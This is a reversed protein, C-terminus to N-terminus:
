RRAIFANVGIVNCLEVAAAFFGQHALDCPEIGSIDYGHKKLFGYVLGLGGGVELLADTKKIDVGHLLSLTLKAEDLYSDLVKAFFKRDTAHAEREVYPCSLLQKRFVENAFLREAYPSYFDKLTKDYEEHM